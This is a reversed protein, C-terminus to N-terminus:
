LAKVRKSVQISYTDHLERGLDPIGPDTQGASTNLPNGVPPEASLKGGEPTRRIPHLQLLQEVPV